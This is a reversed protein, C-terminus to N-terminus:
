LFQIFIDLAVYHEHCINRKLAYIDHIKWCLLLWVSGEARVVHRTGEEGGM